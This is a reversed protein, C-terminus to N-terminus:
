YSTPIYQEFDISSKIYNYYVFTNKLETDIFRREYMPMEFPKQTYSYYCRSSVAYRVWAPISSANEGYGANYVVRLASCIPVDLRITVYDGLTIISYGTIETAEGSTVDIKHVSVISNYGAVPLTAYQYVSEWSVTVNRNIYARMTMKESDIIATQIIDAIYADDSINLDAKLVNDVYDGTFIPTTPTNWNISPNTPLYTYNPRIM